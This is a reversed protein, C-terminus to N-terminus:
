GAIQLGLQHIQDANVPQKIHNCRNTKVANKATQHFTEVGWNICIDRRCQGRLRDALLYVQASKRRNHALLHASKRVDTTPGVPRYKRLAGISFAFNVPAVQRFSETSGLLGASSVAAM